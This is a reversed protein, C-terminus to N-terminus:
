MINHIVPLLYQKPKICRNLSCLDSIKGDKKAVIVCPLAWESTGFEEHTGTDVMHQLECCVAFFPKKTMDRKHVLNEHIATQM